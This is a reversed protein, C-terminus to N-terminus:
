TMASKFVHYVIRLSIKNIVTEFNNKNKFHFLYSKEHFDTGGRTRYSECRMLYWILSFNVKEIIIMKEFIYCICYKKYVNKLQSFLCM